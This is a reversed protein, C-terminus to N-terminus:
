DVALTIALRQSLRNFSMKSLTVPPIRLKGDGMHRPNNRLGVQVSPMEAEKPTAIFQQYVIDTVLLQFSM